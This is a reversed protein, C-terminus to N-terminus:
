SIFEYEKMASELEYGHGNKVNYNDEHISFMRHKPRIKIIYNMYEPNTYSEKLTGGCICSNFMHWGNEELLEKM